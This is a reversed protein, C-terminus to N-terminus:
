NSATLACTDTIVDQYHTIYEILRENKSSSVMQVWIQLQNKQKAIAFVERLRSPCLQDLLHVTQNKKLFVTIFFNLVNTITESSVLHITNGSILSAYKEESGYLSTKIFNDELISFLNPRERLYKDIASYRSIPIGTQNLHIITKELCVNIIHQNRLLKLQPEQQLLEHMELYQNLLYARGHASVLQKIKKASDLAENSLSCLGEHNEIKMLAFAGMLAEKLSAFSCNCSQQAGTTLTELQRCIPDEESLVQTKDQLASPLTQYFFSLGEKREHSKQDKIQNLLGLTFKNPDIKFARITPKKGNISPRPGRNCLVLYGKFFVLYISHFFYGAPLIALGGKKIHASMLPMGHNSFMCEEGAKLAASFMKLGTSGIIATLEPPLSSISEELYKGMTGQAAAEYYPDTDTNRVSNFHGLAQLLDWEKSIFKQAYGITKQLIIATSSEIRHCLSTNNENRASVYRARLQSLLKSREIEWSPNLQISKEVLYQMIQNGNRDNPKILAYLCATELPTKQGLRSSIRRPNEEIRSRLENLDGEQILDHM